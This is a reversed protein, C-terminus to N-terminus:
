EQEEMLVVTYTKANSTGKITFLHNLEGPNLTGAGIAVSGLSTRLHAVLLLSITLKSEM